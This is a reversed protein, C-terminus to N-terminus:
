GKLRWGWLITLCVWVIRRCCGVYCNVYQYWSFWFSFSEHKGININIMYVYVETFMVAFIALSIKHNKMAQHYYTIVITHIYLCMVKVYFCKGYWVYIKISIKDWIDVEACHWQWPFCGENTFCKRFEQWISKAEKVWIRGINCKQVGQFRWSFLTLFIM